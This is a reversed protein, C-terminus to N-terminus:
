SLQVTTVWETM